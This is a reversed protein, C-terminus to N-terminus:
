REHGPDAKSQKTKDTKEEANKILNALNEKPENGNHKCPNIEKAELTPNWDMKGYLAKVAAKIGKEKRIDSIDYISKTNLEQILSCEWSRGVCGDVSRYTSMTWGLEIAGCYVCPTCPEDFIYRVALAAKDLRSAEMEKRYPLLDKTDLAFYACDEYDKFEFSVKQLIGNDYLWAYMDNVALIRQNFDTNPDNGFIHKDEKVYM